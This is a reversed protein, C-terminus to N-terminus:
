YSNNKTSLLKTIKKIKDELRFRKEPNQEELLLKDLDFLTKQATILMKKKKEANTEVAKLSKLLKQKEISKKKLMEDMERQAKDDERQAKDDESEGVMVDRIPPILKMEIAEDRFDLRANEDLFMLISSNCPSREFFFDVHSMMDRGDLTILFPEYIQIFSETAMTGSSIPDEISTISSVDFKSWVITYHLVM